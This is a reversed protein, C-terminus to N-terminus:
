SRRTRRKPPTAEAHEVVVFDATKWTFPPEKRRDVSRRDGTGTGAADATRRDWMVNVPLSETAQKLKDYRRLAGRRVILNVM